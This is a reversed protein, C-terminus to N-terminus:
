PTEPPLFGARRLWHATRLLGEELPTSCADPFLARLASTDAVRRSVTDWPRPPCLQLRAEPQRLLALLRRALGLIPTEIGSAVNLVRGRARHAELLVAVVDDVFSFDRTAEAGFVQLPQDTQGLLRLMNPIANRFPGPPDGPGYVNFLRFVAFPLGSAEVYREGLLKTLAYPTTPAILSDERLPLPAAGYSSSSGAYVLLGCGAGRAFDLVSLTGQANTLLDQTPLALSRENAFSAALHFILDYPGSPLQALDERHRIDGHCFRIRHLVDDLRAPSGDVSLNDVVVVEDGRRLLARALNSGIFGAGGTILVRMLKGPM